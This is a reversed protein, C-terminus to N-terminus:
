SEEQEKPSYTFTMPKGNEDSFRSISPTISEAEQATVKDDNAIANYADINMRVELRMAASIEEKSLGEENKAIREVAEDIAADFLKLLENSSGYTENRCGAFNILYEGIAVWRRMDFKKTLPPFHTVTFIAAAMIEAYYRRDFKCVRDLNISLCWFNYTPALEDENAQPTMTMDLFHQMTSSLEDDDGDRYAATFALTPNLEGNVLLRWNHPLNDELDNLWEKGLGHPVLTNMLMMTSLLSNFNRLDTRPNGQGDITRYKMYLPKKLWEAQGIRVVAVYSEYRKTPIEVNLCAIIQGRAITHILQAGDMTSAYLALDGVHHFSTSAVVIGFADLDNNSVTKM